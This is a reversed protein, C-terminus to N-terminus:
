GQTMKQGESAGQLSQIVSTRIFNCCAEIRHKTKLTAVDLQVFVAAKSTACLCAHSGRLIRRKVIEQTQEIIESADKGRIKEHRVGPLLQVNVAVHISNEQM